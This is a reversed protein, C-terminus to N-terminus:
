LVGSVSLLVRRAERVGIGVAILRNLSALRPESAEFRLATRFYYRAPDVAEGRALAAIVDPPGHRLGQSVVHVRAGQEDELVYRADVELVGDSRRLQWDAGGALVRGRWGALEGQGVFRGGSITVVRREGTPMDGLSVVEGVEVELQMLPALTPPM